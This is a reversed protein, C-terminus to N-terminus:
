LSVELPFLRDDECVVIAAVLDSDDWEIFFVVFGVDMRDAPASLVGANCRSAEHFVVTDLGFVCDAVRWFPVFVEAAVNGITSQPDVEILVAFYDLAVCALVSVVGSSVGVGVITCGGVFLM